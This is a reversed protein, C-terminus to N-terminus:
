TMPELGKVAVVESLKRRSRTLLFGKKPARGGPAREEGQIWPTRM